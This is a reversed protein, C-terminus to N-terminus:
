PRFEKIDPSKTLDVGGNRTHRSSRQPTSHSNAPLNTPTSPTLDTTQTPSVPLQNALDNSEDLNDTQTTAAPNLEESLQKKNSDGRLVEDTHNKYKRMTFYQTEM